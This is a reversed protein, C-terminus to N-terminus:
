FRGLLKLSVSDLHRLSSVVVDRKTRSFAIRAAISRKFFWTAALEYSSDRDPDDNWRAYAAKLGLSVIPFLEAAIAYSRIRGRTIAIPNSPPGIVPGVGILQGGSPPAPQGTPALFSALAVAELEARSSHILGSVSYTMRGVDGVHFVSIAYTETDIEDHANIAPLPIPFLDPNGAQMIDLTMTTFQYELELATAEGLYKGGVVGYGHLKSDTTSSESNPWDTDSRDASAGLYWGSDQWVHRGALAYGFSDFELTQALPDTFPSYVVSESRQESRTATVSLRSSRDLFAALSYPGRMDDIRSFYHTASASFADIEINDGSEVQEVEGAVQWSYEASCAVSPLCLAGIGVLGVAFLTNLPIHM